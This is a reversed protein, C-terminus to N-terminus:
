CCRGDLGDVFRNCGTEVTVVTRNVVVGVEAPVDADIDAAFRWDLCCRGFPDSYGILDTITVAENPDATVTFENGM